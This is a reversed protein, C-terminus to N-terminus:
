SHAGRAGAVASLVARANSFQGRLLRKIVAVGTSAYCFLMNGPHFSRMFLHKSRFIHFDAVLSPVPRRM